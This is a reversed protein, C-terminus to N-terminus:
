GVLCKNKYLAELRKIELRLDNIQRTEWSPKRQEQERSRKLRDEMSKRANDELNKKQAEAKERAENYTSFVNEEYYITGCGRDNDMYSIPHEKDSTDMRINKITIESVYPVYTQTTIYGHSQYGRSCTGCPVHFIEGAPTRVLWELEGFCDPCKESIEELNCQAVFVKDGLDYKPQIM